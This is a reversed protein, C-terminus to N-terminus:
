TQFNNNNNNLSWPLPAIYMNRRARFWDFSLRYNSMQDTKIETGVDLWQMWYLVRLCSIVNVVKSYWIWTNNSSFCINCSISFMRSLKLWAVPFSLNYCCIKNWILTLSKSLIMNELTCATWKKTDSTQTEGNKTWYKQNINIIFLLPINHNNNHLTLHSEFKSYDM